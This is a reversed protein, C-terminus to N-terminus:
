SFMSWDVGNGILGDAFRHKAFVGWIWHNRLIRITVLVTERIEGGEKITQKGCLLWFWMYKAHVDYKKVEWFEM